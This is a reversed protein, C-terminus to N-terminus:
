YCVFLDLLLNESQEYEMMRKRISDKESEKEEWEELLDEIAMDHKQVAAQLRSIDQDIGELKRGNENMNGSITRSKEELSSELRQLLEEYQRKSIFM